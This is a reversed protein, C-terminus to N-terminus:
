KENRKKILSWAKKYSRPKNLGLALLPCTYLTEQLCNLGWSSPTFTLNGCHEIIEIGGVAHRLMGTVYVDDLWFFPVKFSARYLDIIVDASMILVFGICYQFPYHTHGKLINFPVAWKGTRPILDQFREIGYITKSVYLNNAYVEKLFKWMDFVVDDDTKIVYKVETCYHSVWHLGMVAKYTLNHYADKFDGQITDGFIFHEGLIRDQLTQDDVRGLLFIVRVETPLFLKRAGYTERINQRRAFHHPATHVVVIVNVPSPSKSCMRVNNLIYQGNFIPICCTQNISFTEPNTKPSISDNFESNYENRKSQLECGCEIHNSDTHLVIYKTSIIFVLLVLVYKFYKLSAPICFAPRTNIM